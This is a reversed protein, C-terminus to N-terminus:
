SGNVEIVKKLLAFTKSGVVNKCEKDAIDKHSLKLENLVERFCEEVKGESGKRGLDTVIRDVLREYNM